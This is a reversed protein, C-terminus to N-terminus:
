DGVPWTPLPGAGLATRSYIGLLSPKHVVQATELASTVGSAGLSELRGPVPLNHVVAQGM